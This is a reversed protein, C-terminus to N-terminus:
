FDEQQQTVATSVLIGQHSAKLEEQSSHVDAWHLDCTELGLKQNRERTGLRGVTVLENNSGRQKGGNSATQKRYGRSDHFVKNRFANVLIAFAPCCGIIIAISCEVMGWIALWTPDLPQGDAEPKAANIAVQTVRLCAFLICVLGTAFLMLIGMKKSQPMQLDWTLRIPLAMIMLNTSTDAAFSYYHSDTRCTPKQPTFSVCGGKWFGSLTGCSRFYFTYNGVHTLPCIIAIGWWIVTYRRPIGVLLRRYLLLLSFKISWLITWFMCFSAFVMKAMTIRDQELGKYSVATGNKVAYVRQMHPSVSVYLACMTVYFAFACGVFCDSATIKRPRLINLVVRVVIVSSTLGLMSYAVKLVTGQAFGNTQSSM